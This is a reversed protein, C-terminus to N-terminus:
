KKQDSKEPKKCHCTHGDKKCTCSGGTTCHCTGGGNKTSCTNADKSTGAYALGAFALFALVLTAKFKM